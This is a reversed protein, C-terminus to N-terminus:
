DPGRNGSQNKDSTTSQTDQLTTKEVPDIDLKFESAQLVGDRSRDLSSFILDVERDDVERHITANRLAVGFEDRTLQPKYAVSKLAYDLRNMDHLVDQLAQILKFEERAHNRTSQGGLYSLCLTHALGALVLSGGTIVAFASPLGIFYGPMPVNMGFYGAITTCIGISLSVIGIHVNVRVMRNRHVNLSISLFDQKSKVRRLMSMVDHLSLILQRHYNELLVEVESHLQSNIQVGQVKAEAQATLLLALMGEDDNLLNQLLSMHDEIELQFDSLSDKLLVMRQLGAEVENLNEGSALITDVLPRYLFVRRRYTACIDRLAEEVVALEFPVNSDNKVLMERLGHLWQRVFKQHPNFLIMSDAKIIAKIQGLALVICSGRALILAPSRQMRHVHDRLALSVLDRAHIAQDSLLEYSSVRRDEVAGGRSLHVVMFFAGERKGDERKGDERKGNSGSERVIDSASSSGAAAVGRSQGRLRLM